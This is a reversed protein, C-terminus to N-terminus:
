IFISEKLSELHSLPYLVWRGVCFICSVRTGDKPPSSGRSSSIVVWELIKAQFIGQVSDPLSYDMPDCLTGCSQALVCVKKIHRYFRSYIRYILTM